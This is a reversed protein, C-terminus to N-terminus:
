HNHSALPRYEPLHRKLALILDISEEIRKRPIQGSLVAKHIIDIAQWEHKDNAAITLINAGANISRILIDAMTFQNTLAKMQLHDTIILGKYGVVKRLVEIVKPSISAPFIPDIAPVLVHALMIAGLKNRLRHFPIFDKRVLDRYPKRIVPLSYHSDTTTEGLGPFHKGTSIVGSREMITIHQHALKSVFKPDSAYSRRYMFAKPNKSLDLVPALNLNFGLRGLVSAVQHTASQFRHNAQTHKSFLSGLTRAGKFSAPTKLNKIRNITGGEQDIAIFFPLGSKNIARSQLQQILTRTQHTSAINYRFFLIGGFRGRKLHRKTKQSLQGKPIDVIIMQGIKDRLSMHSKKVFGHSKPALVLFFLTIRISTLYFINLVSAM